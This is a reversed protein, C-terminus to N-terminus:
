CFNLFWDGISLFSKFDKGEEEAAKEMEDVYKHLKELVNNMLKEEEDTYAM